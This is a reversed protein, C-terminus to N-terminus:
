RGGCKHEVEPQLSGSGSHAPAATNFMNGTSLAAFKQPNFFQKFEESIELNQEIVGIVGLVLDLLSFGM